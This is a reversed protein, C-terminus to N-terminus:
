RYRSLTARALDRVAEVAEPPSRVEADAGVRLLLAAVWGLQAAPLTVELSGDDLEVPDVTVYYEAIWRAPPRLLLRVPVEEGTPTYLARGAGGLGRPEFTVGAPTVARVRDARFLREDDAAVDWAAVYWNGMASFVEEPEVDRTTWEGTSGAFYEITIRERRRAARRLTELHEAPRGGAAAEIAEGSGATDPGLSDRLKELASALAPAEPLGPTALLEAARLTIALAEQRSLRLPRSFHDAMTIWIHDDEDVEVDILDGPGYPPLGSMFLLDLDRRLQAPAVDYLRAVDDLSSGPHQVLYPVIALMRGLRDATKPPSSRRGEAM